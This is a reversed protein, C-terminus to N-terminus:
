RTLYSHQLPVPLKQQTAAMQELKQLLVVVITPDIQDMNSMELSFILCVTAMQIGLVQFQLM